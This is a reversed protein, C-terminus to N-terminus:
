DQSCCECDEKGNERGRERREKKPKKLPVDEATSVVPVVSHGGSGAPGPTVAVPLLPPHASSSATPLIEGDSLSQYQLLSKLLFRFIEM